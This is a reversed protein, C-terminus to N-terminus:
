IVILSITCCLLRHHGKKYLTQIKRDKKFVGSLHCFQPFTHKLEIM